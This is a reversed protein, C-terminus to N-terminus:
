KVEKLGSITCYGLAVMKRGVVGESVLLSANEGSRADLVFTRPVVGSQQIGLVMGAGGAAITVAGAGLKQPTTDLSFKLTGIENSETPASDYSAHGGLKAMERTPLLMECVFDFDVHPPAIQTANAESAAFAIALLM